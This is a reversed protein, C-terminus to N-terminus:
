ESGEGAQGEDAWVRVRHWSHNMYGHLNWVQSSHEPQVNAASDWARCILEHSGPDLTLEAEWLTWSGIPSPRLTAEIWHDGHDHSLEVRTVTRRGGAMAWGRVVHTGAVVEAGDVPSGIASNISLEGLEPAREWDEETPQPSSILKYSRRQFPSDSPEPRVEIRYLWKVSRAGIYGPVIVRLPFGHEEPLPEGNMEWALLVDRQLAQDLPISAGYEITGDGNPCQDLGSFGVHAAGDLVGAADLLNALPVGRWLANGIAAASWQPEQRHIPKAEGFGSRRNGACQLTAEIEVEPLLPSLDRLRLRLPRRVLGTIELRYAEVDIRPVGGHCCVFFDKNETIPESILTRMETQAKIPGHSLFELAPLRGDRRAGHTM